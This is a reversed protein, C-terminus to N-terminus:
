VTLGKAAMFCITAATALFGTMARTATSPTTVPVAMSFMMGSAERSSISAMKAWFRTTGDEGFVSDADYGRRVVDDGRGGLLLDEGGMGFLSDNGDNGYLENRTQNGSIMDAGSGGKVNEILSRPDGDFLRANFV